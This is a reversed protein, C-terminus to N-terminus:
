SNGTNSTELGLHRDIKMIKVKAPLPSDHQAFISYNASWITTFVQKIWITTSKTLDFRM